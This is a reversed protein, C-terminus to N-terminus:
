APKRLIMLAPQWTAYVGQEMAYRAHYDQLLRRFKGPAVSRRATAFANGAGVKRMSNLLAKPSVYWERVSAMDSHEIVFGASRALAIYKEAEMLPLLGLSLAQEQALARLEKLSEAALTVIVAVAGPKLVRHIEAFAAQKDGVWQLCLSSVVGDYVGDALPLRAADAQLTYLCRGQAHRCMEYAIDLGTVSWAYADLAALMGTGCGIDLIRAHPPMLPLAADLVRRMQRQQFQAQADYSAAARNFNDQLKQPLILHM